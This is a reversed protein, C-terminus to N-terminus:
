KIFLQEIDPYAPLQTKFPCVACQLKDKCTACVVAINIKPLIAAIIQDLSTTMPQNVAWAIRRLIFVSLQNIQPSYLRPRNKSNLIRSLKKSLISNNHM